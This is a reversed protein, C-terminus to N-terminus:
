PFRRFRELADKAETNFTVNLRECIRTRTDADASEWVWDTLHWSTIACNYAHYASAHAFAPKQETELSIELQKIEWYLKALMHAPTALAFVQDPSQPQQDIKFTYTM